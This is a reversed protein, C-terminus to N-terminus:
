ASPPWGGRVVVLASMHRRARSFSAGTEDCHNRLRDQPSRLNSPPGDAM